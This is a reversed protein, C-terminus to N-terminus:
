RTARVEPKQSYGPSAVMGYREMKMVTMVTISARNAVPIHARAMWGINTVTLALVCGLVSGPFM